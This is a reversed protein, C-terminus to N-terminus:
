TAPPNRPMPSPPVIPAGAGMALAIASASEGNSTSTERRGIVGSRIKLSMSCALSLVFSFDSHDIKLSANAVRRAASPVHAGGNGPREGSGARGDRHVIMARLRFGLGHGGLDLLGPALRFGILRINRIGTDDLLEDRVDLAIEAPEVNQDVVS